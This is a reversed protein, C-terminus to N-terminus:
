FASAAAARGSITRATSLRASRIAPTKRLPSVAFATVKPATSDSASAASRTIQPPGPLSSAKAPAKTTSVNARTIFTSASNPEATVMTSDTLKMFRSFIDRKSYGIRMRSAVTPMIIIIEALLRM